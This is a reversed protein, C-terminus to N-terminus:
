GRRSADFGVWALGAIVLCAIWSLWVPVSTTGNVVIQWGGAARIFQVVAIIAFLLAALRSYSRANM